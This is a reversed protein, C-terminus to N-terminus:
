SVKVQLQYINAGDTVFASLRRFQQEAVLWVGGVRTLEARDIRSLESRDHFGHLIGIAQFSATRVVRDFDKRLVLFFRDSQAKNEVPIFRHIRYCKRDFVGQAICVFEKGDLTSTSRRALAAMAGRNVIVGGNLPPLCTSSPILKRSGVSFAKASGKQANKHGVMRQLSPDGTNGTLSPLPCFGSTATEIVRVSVVQLAVPRVGAEAM